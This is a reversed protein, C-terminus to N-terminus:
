HWQGMLTSVPIKRNNYCNVPPEKYIKIAERFMEMQEKTPKKPNRLDELFEEADEGELILGLEIPRVM